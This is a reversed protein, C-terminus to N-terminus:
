FAGELIEIETEHNPRMMVSAVDFRLERALTKSEELWRAALHRIKQRKDRTVAESPTGFADGRRTKVECFVVVRDRSVVLDLEGERCRWNQAIVAYGRQRYADAVLAEGLAGLQQRENNPAGAETAQSISPASATPAPVAPASTPKLNRIGNSRRIPRLPGDPADAM